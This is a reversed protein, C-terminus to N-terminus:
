LQIVPINGGGGAAGSQIVSMLLSSFNDDAVLGVSPNLLAQSFAQNVNDHASAIADAKKGVSRRPRISKGVPATSAQTALVAAAVAILGSTIHM